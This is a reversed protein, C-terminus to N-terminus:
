RRLGGALADERAFVVAFGDGHIKKWGPRNEFSQLIPAQPPFIIWDIKYKALEGDLTPSALDTMRFFSQTFADGYMDTRGDIFPRVHSFILYGGFGLENLVPKQRLDAPVAALASIPAGPGDVRQVPLALRLAAMLAMAAVSAVFAFRDLGMRRLEDKAPSFSAAMPGALLLPAIIALVMQQRVQHLAMHVLGLLIALRLPALRVPRFFALGVLALLAIEMPQLHEFSAPRWETIETLFSLNMVGLPYLFAKYFQPNILAACAAALGFVAWDRLVRARREAPAALIAELAFPGALALGLLFSAHMNAWLAMLPLMLMSPARDADRAALLGSTWAALLALAFVHPRALLSGSVLSFSLLMLVLLPTGGLGDRVARRTVILLAMAVGAGTLVVVGSWGALRYAGQLLLESLWEHASWPAGPMTFSFPDATPVAGHAFIWAGTALHWWTDPDNLVAPSGIAVAFAFLPAVLPLFEAPAIPLRATAAAPIPSTSSTM